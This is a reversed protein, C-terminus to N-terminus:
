VRFCFWTYPLFRKSKQSLHNSSLQKEQYNLQACFM